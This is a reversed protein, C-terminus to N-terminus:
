EVEISDEDIIGNTVIGRVAEGQNEYSSMKKGMLKVMMAPIEVHRPESEGEVLITLHMGGRATEYLSVKGTMLLKPERGDFGTM